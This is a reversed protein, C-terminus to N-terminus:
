NDIHHQERYILMMPVLPKCDKSVLRMSRREDDSLYQMIMTWLEISFNKWADEKQKAVENEEDNQFEPPEERNVIMTRWEVTLCSTM